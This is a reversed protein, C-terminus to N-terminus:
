LQLVPDVDPEWSCALRDDRHWRCVLRPSRSLRGLAFLRVLDPATGKHSFRDPADAPRFALIAATM